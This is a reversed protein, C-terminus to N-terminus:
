NSEIAPCPRVRNLDTHYIYVRGAQRLAIRYGKTARKEVVEGAVKCDMSTDLWNAQEYNLTAIDAEPVNLKKALDERARIIMPNLDKLPIGIGRPKSWQTAMGCVVAYKATAHVRYNGHTTKFIVEYGSTLVQAAQSGRKGCGLSSDPWTHPESSIVDIAGAEVSLEKALATRAIETAAKAADDAGNDQSLAASMTGIAFLIASRLLLKKM